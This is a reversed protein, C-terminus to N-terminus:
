VTWHMPKSGLKTLLKRLKEVDVPRKTNLPKSYSTKYIKYLAEPRKVVRVGRSLPYM